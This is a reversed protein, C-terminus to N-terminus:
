KMNDLENRSDIPFRIESHERNIMSLILGTWRLGLHTFINMVQNPLWQRNEDYKWSGNQRELYRIPNKSWYLWEYRRWLYEKVWVTRNSPMKQKILLNSKEKVFLIDNESLLYRVIIQSQKFGKEILTDSM